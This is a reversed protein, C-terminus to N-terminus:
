MEREISIATTASFERGDESIDITLAWSTLQGRYSGRATTVNVLIGTAMHPLQPCTGREIMRNTSHRDIEQRGREIGAQETTLLADVIDQGQRDAPARTVEIKM